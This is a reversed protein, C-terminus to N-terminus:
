VPVGDTVLKQAPLFQCAFDSSFAGYGDAQISGLLEVITRSQIRTNAVTRGSLTFENHIVVKAEEQILSSGIDGTTNSCSGLLLLLSAAASLKLTKM